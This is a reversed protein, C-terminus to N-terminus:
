PFRLDFDAGGKLYLIGPGVTFDKPNIKIANGLFDVAETITGTVSCKIKEEGFITWVAAVRSGDPMTWKALHVVGRRQLTPPGGNRSLRILTQFAHGSPKLEMDKRVIGFHSERGDNHEQSRFNYKFVKEAGASRAILLTRPLLEAQVTESLATLDGTTGLTIINGKLDSDFRYLAAVPFRRNDRVAYLLPLMRDGPKLNNPAFIRIVNNDPIARLEPFEEGAEYRVATKPADSTWWTKWGLHFEPMYEANVQKGNDSLDFYFPLGMPLIVTGGRKLYSLLGNRRTMPFGESPPLLVVPFREVSLQELDSLTIGRRKRYDPILADLSYCPTATYYNNKPDALYCVTTKEPSMGLKKLAAAIAEGKFTENKKESSSSYGIETIWIPKNRLGAEDLAARIGRISGALGSEPFAYWTYPHINMVDFSDGAGAQLAKRVYATPAGSLGSFLVVNDPDAKKLVPYTAQLLEAYKAADVPSEGWFPEYNAENVVEWNHIKGKFYGASKEVYRLFAERHRYIPINKKATDGGLIATMEIGHRSAYELVRDWRSFDWRGEQPEVQTWDLDARANDIGLREMLACLAEADSYYEGRNLHACVGYQSSAALTGAFLCSLFITLHKMM